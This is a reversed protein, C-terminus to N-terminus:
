VAKKTYIVGHNVKGIEIVNLYNYIIKIMMRVNRVTEDKVIVLM